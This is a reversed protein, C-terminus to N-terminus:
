MIRIGLARAAETLEPDGLEVQQPVGLDLATGLRDRFLVVNHWEGFFVSWWRLGVFGQVHLTRAIEQTTSRDRAAVRDPGIELRDITVPDCLDVIKAATAADLSVQLLAYRHGGESLDDENLTQNRLDQVKEALAHAPTEALYLM